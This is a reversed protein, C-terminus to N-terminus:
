SALIAFGVEGEVCDCVAVSGLQLGPCDPSGHGGGYGGRGGFNGEGSGHAMGVGRRTSGGPPGLSHTAFAPVARGREAGTPMVTAAYLWFTSADQRRVGRRASGGTALDDGTAEGPGGQCGGRWWARPLRVGICTWVSTWVPLTAQARPCELAFLGHEGRAVPQSWAM